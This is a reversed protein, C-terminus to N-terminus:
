AFEAATKSVPNSWFNFIWRLEGVIGGGSDSFIRSSIASYKMLHLSVLKIWVAVVTDTVCIFRIHRLQSFDPSTMGGFCTSWPLIGIGQRIDLGKWWQEDTKKRQVTQM